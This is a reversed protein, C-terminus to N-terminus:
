SNYQLGAAGQIAGEVGAAFVVSPLHERLWNWARDSTAELSAREVPTLKHGPSHRFMRYSRRPFTQGSQPDAIWASGFHVLDLLRLDQGGECNPAGVFAALLNYLSTRNELGSGVFKRFEPPLPISLLDAIRDTVEFAASTYPGDFLWYDHGNWNEEDLPARGLFLAYLLAGARFESPVLNEVWKILALNQGNKIVSGFLKDTWSHFPDEFLMPLINLRDLINGLKLAVRQWKLLDRPQGYLPLRRLMEHILLLAARALMEPGDPVSAGGKAEVDSQGSPWKTFTDANGISLHLSWNQFNGIASALAPRLPTGAVESEGLELIPPLDPRDPPLPPPEEGGAGDGGGGKLYARRVFEVVSAVTPFTVEEGELYLGIQFAGRGAGLAVSRNVVSEARFDPAGIFICAPERVWESDIAGGRSSAFALGGRADLTDIKWHGEFEDPM